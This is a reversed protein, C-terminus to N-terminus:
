LDLVVILFYTLVFLSDCEGELVIAKQLATMNPKVPAPPTLTTPPKPIDLDAGDDSNFLGIALDLMPKNIKWPVTGLYNLSDLLPYLQQYPSSAIRHMQHDGLNSRILPSEYLLYGGNLHTYWPLPPSMMPLMSAEFYLFNKSFGQFHQLILPHQKIQKVLQVDRNRYVVYFAPVESKSAMSKNLITIKIDNLIINYLFQGVEQKVALPWSLITCDVDPGQYDAQVLKQWLQRPNLRQEDEKPDLLARCYQPYLQEVKGLVGSLKKYHVLWRKMVQNGLERCLFSVPASYHASQTTLRKIESMLIDVYEDTSLVVLYPYIDLSRTSSKLFRGKCLALDREICSKVKARWKQELLETKLANRESDTKDDKSKENAISQVQVIGTLESELQAGVMSTMEEWSFWESNMIPPSINKSPTSLNNLEDLLPNLYGQSKPTRQPVFEPRAMCIGTTTMEKENFTFRCQDFIQSLEWGRTEIESLLSKALLISDEDSPKYALCALMSTYSQLTPKIGEEAMLLRVEEILGWNGTKSAGRLAVDFVENDQLLNIEKRYKKLTPLIKWLFKNNFCMFLYNKLSQLQLLAKAHEMEKLEEPSIPKTQKKKKGGVTKASPVVVSTHAEFLETIEDIPIKTSKIQNYELGLELESDDLSSHHDLDRNNNDMDETVEQSYPYSANYSSYSRELSTLGVVTRRSDWNSLSFMNQEKTIPVTSTIRLKDVVAMLFVIKFRILSSHNFQVSRGRFNVLLQLTRCRQCSIM